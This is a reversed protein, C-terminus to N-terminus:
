RVLIEPFRATAGGVNPCASAVELGFEISIPSGEIAHGFRLPVGVKGSGSLPGRIERSGLYHGGQKVFAVIFSYPDVAADAYRVVIKNVPRDVAHVVRLTIFGGRSDGCGFPNYVPYFRLIGVRGSATDSWTFNASDGGESGRKYPPHHAERKESAALGPASIGLIAFVLVLAQIRSRRM